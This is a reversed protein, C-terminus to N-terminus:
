LFMFKDLPDHTMRDTQWWTSTAKIEAQDMHSEKHGLSM